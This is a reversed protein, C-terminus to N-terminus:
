TQNSSNRLELIAEEVRRVEPVGYFGRKVRYPGHRGRRIDEGFFINGTGDPKATREPRTIDGPEFSEVKRRPYTLVILVRQNTIAYILWSKAEIYTWLPALLMGAGVLLFPVGFLPFIADGSQAAGHTWFVAFGSFAVGFLAVSLKSGARAGAQPREVWDVIGGRRLEPKVVAFLGAGNM